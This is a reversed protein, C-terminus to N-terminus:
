QDIESSTKWRQLIGLLTRSLATTGGPNRGTSCFCGPAILHKARRKMHTVPKGGTRWGFLLFDRNDHLRGSVQQLGSVSFLRWSRSLIRFEGVLCTFLGPMGKMQMGAAGLHAVQRSGPAGTSEPDQLGSFTEAETAGVYESHRSRPPLVSGATGRERERLCRRGREGGESRRDKNSSNEGRGEQKCRKM